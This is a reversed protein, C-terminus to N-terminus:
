GVIDVRGVKFGTADAKKRCLDRSCVKEILDKWLMSGFCYYTKNERKLWLAYFDKVKREHCDTAFKTYEELATQKLEEPSNMFTEFLQKADRNSFFGTKEEEM